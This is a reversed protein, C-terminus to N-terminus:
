PLFELNVDEKFKDWYINLTTSLSSHGLISQVQRPSVGSELAHSAFFHRLSHFSIVPVEAKGCLKKLHYNLDGGEFVSKSEDGIIYRRELLTALKKSMPVTRAKGNKTPGDYSRQIKIAGSMFDVDSWKLGVWEGKRVGTHLVFLLTLYFEPMEEECTSLAKEAEAKTWCKAEKSIERARIMRQLLRTDPKKGTIFDVYKSAVILNARLTGPKLGEKIWEIVLDRVFNNDQKITPLYPLVWNKYISVQTKITNPRGLLTSEFADM